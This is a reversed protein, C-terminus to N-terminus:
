DTRARGMVVGLFEENRCLPCFPPHAVQVWHEWCEKCVKHCCGLTEAAHRTGPSFAELCVPCETQDNQALFELRKEFSELIGAMSRNNKEAARMMHFVFWERSEDPIGMSETNDIGKLQKKMDINVTAPLTAESDSHVDFVSKRMQEVQKAYEEYLQFKAACEAGDEPETRLQALLEDTGDNGSASHAAVCLAADQALVAANGGVLAAAEAMGEEEDDSSDYVVAAMTAEEPIPAALAVLQKAQRAGSAAQASSWRMQCGAFDASPASMQRLGESMLAKSRVAHSKVAKCKRRAMECQKQQEVQAMLRQRSEPTM